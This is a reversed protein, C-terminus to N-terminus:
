SKMLHATVVLNDVYSRAARDFHGTCTILRLLPLASPGYVAKTPFHRKPYRERRNVVFTLVTGDATTILVKAGARLDKLRFFVAPGNVSDVHGAIVAPGTEGPRVGDAYWGARQWRSPSQLTGGSVLGLPQLASDVGISPIKIREPKAQPAARAVSAPPYARPLDARATATPRVPTPTPSGHASRATDHAGAGPTVALVLGSVALAVLLGAAVVRLAQSRHQEVLQRSLSRLRTRM